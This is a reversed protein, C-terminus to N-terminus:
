IGQIELEAHSNFVFFSLHFSLYAKIALINTILPFIVYCYSLDVGKLKNFTFSFNVTLHIGRIEFFVSYNIPIELFNYILRYSPM